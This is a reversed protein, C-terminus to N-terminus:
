AVGSLLALPPTAPPPVGREKVKKALLRGDNPEMTQVTSLHSPPVASEAVKAEYQNLALQMQEKADAYDTVSMCLPDARKRKKCFQDDFQAKTFPTFRERPMFSSERSQQVLLIDGYLQMKFLNSAHANHPLDKVAYYWVTLDREGGKGKKRMSHFSNPPGHYAFPKHMYHSFLFRGDMPTLLVEFVDGNPTIKVATIPHMQATCEEHFLETTLRGKTHALSDYHPAPSVVAGTVQEIFETVKDREEDTMTGREVMYSVHAVVSEWNCYSGKKFLKGTSSWSPLYCHAQKMPYGTWDCQWFSTGNLKRRGM